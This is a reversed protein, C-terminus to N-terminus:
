RRLWSCRERNVTISPPLARMALMPYGLMPYRASRCDAGARAAFNELAGPSMARASKQRSRPVAMGRPLLASGSHLRTSESGAPPLDALWPGCPTLRPACQNGKRPLKELSVADNNTM